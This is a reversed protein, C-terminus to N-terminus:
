NSASKGKYSIHDQDTPSIRNSKPWYSDGGMSNTATANNNHGTKKHTCTHSDNKARVPQHGHSWCYKGMNRPFRFTRNGPDSGSGDRGSRGGVGSGGGGIGGDNGGSVNTEKNKASKTLVAMADALMKIQATM